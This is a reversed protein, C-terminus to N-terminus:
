GFSALATGSPDNGYVGNRGVINTHNLLNFAELRVSLRIRERALNFGREVFMMLDYIPTGRGNNRGMVHGDLVPRDSLSGDGNNDAGTTINFPRSFALTAVLLLLVHRPRSARWRRADTEGWRCASPTASSFTM